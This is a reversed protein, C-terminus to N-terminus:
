YVELYVGNILKTDANLSWTGLPPSSPRNANDWTPLRMPSIHKHLDKTM